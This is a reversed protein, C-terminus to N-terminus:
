KSVVTAEIKGVVKLAISRVKKIDALLVKNEYFLGDSVSNRVFRKEFLFDKDKKTIGNITYLSSVLDSIDEGTSIKSKEQTKNVFLTAATEFITWVMFFSISKPIKKVPRLHEIIELEKTMNSLLYNVNNYIPLYYSYSQDGGLKLLKTFNIKEKELILKLGKIQKSKLKLYQNKSYESPSKEHAHIVKNLSQIDDMIDLIDYYKKYGQDM